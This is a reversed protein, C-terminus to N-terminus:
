RPGNKKLNKLWTWMTALLDPVELLSTGVFIGVFGGIGSWFSELGFERINIIELYTRDMYIFDAIIVPRSILRSTMLKHRDLTTVLKMENCPPDYMSQIKTFDHIYNNISKMDEPTNCIALKKKEPM